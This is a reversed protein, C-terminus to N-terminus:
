DRGDFMDHRITHGWHYLVIFPWVFILMSAMAITWVMSYIVNSALTFPVLLKRWVSHPAPKALLVQARKYAADAVEDLTGVTDLSAYREM